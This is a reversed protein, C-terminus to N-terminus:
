NVLVANTFRKLDHRLIIIHDLQHSLKSAPHMWTGYHKKQFFTCVACLDHTDLFTRFRRGADNTYNIGFPGVAGYQYTNIDPDDTCTGDRGISANIDACLILVDGPQRKSLAADLLLEFEDHEADPATSVPAYASIMFLYLPKQHEDFVLMRLAIIRPGFDCFLNPSTGAAAKWASTAEPSLIIGTGCSGRRSLQEPPGVGLFTYKDIEFQETGTRWTEQVGLAFGKRINLADVLETLLGDTKLGRCNQQFILQTPHRKKRTLSTLKLKSTFKATTLGTTSQVPHVDTSQNVVLPSGRPKGSWQRSLSCTQSFATPLAQAAARGRQVTGTVGCRM